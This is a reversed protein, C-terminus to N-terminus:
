SASDLRERVIEPIPSLRVNRTPLVPASMRDTSLARGQRSTVSPCEDDVQSTCKDVDKTKPDLEKADKPRILQSKGYILYEHGLDLTWRRFSYRSDSPAFFQQFNVLYNLHFHDTAPKLRVGESLQVFGPQRALGPASSETYLQEISPSSQTHNGQIDVFRGHVEGLLSVNLKEFLSWKTVPRMVNGGVIAQQMGFFSRNTPLSLPGLGFFPLKPLSTNQAYINFVTYPHIKPKKSKKKTGAEKDDPHEVVFKVTPTHIIKM